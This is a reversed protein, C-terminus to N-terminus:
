KRQYFSRTNQVHKPGIQQFGQTPLGFPHMQQDFPQIQQDSRQMQQDFSRMQQPVQQNRPLFNDNKPMQRSKVAAFGKQITEIMSKMDARAQAREAKEEARYKLEKKEQDARYKLEKKAEDARYKLEAKEQGELMKQLALLDRDNEDRFKANKARDDASRAVITKQRTNLKRKKTTPQTLDDSDKEELAEYEDTMFDDSILDNSEELNIKSEQVPGIRKTASNAGNMIKDAKEYEANVKATLYQNQQNPAPANDILWKAEAEIEARSMMKNNLAARKFYRLQKSGKMRENDNFKEMHALHAEHTPHTVEIIDLLKQYSEKMEQLDTCCKADAPVPSHFRDRLIKRQLLIKHAKKLNRLKCGTVETLIEDFTDIKNNGDVFGASTFQELIERSCYM